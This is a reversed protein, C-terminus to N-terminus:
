YKKQKKLVILLILILITFKRGIIDTLGNLLFIFFTPILYLTEWGSFVPATIGYEQLVYPKITSEVMSLYWDMMAVIGMFIVLYIMYGRKRPVIKETVRDLVEQAM